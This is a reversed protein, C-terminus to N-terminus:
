GAKSTFRLSRSPACMNGRRARVATVPVTADVDHIVQRMMDGGQNVEVVLADAALWRWLAVAKTAWGAPSWGTNTEDAIVYLAGDEGLGAAVLGCADARDSTSAPPDVAVVIRRMPPAAEVRCAELRARTWLADDREEILDGDLEQRGLRTGAYRDVVTRLFVPSLHYANAATAARTAASRPDGLLRKLLALPRPTTTIM